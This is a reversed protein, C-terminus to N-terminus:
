LEAHVRCRSIGPKAARMFAFVGQVRPRAVEHAFGHTPGRVDDFFVYLFLVVLAWRRGVSPEGRRQTAGSAPNGADAPVSADLRRYAHEEHDLWNADPDPM